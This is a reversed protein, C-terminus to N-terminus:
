KIHINIIYMIYNIYLILIIYYTNYLKPLYLIIYKRSTRDFVRPIITKGRGGVSKAEKGKGM